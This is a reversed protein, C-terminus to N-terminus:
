SPCPPNRVRDLHFQARQLTPDIELARELDVIAEDTRGLEILTAGRNNLALADDANLRLAKSLDELADVRRGLKLQVLGRDRLPEADQPRNEILWNLDPIAEEFREKTIFVRSRMLRTTPDNVRHRISNEAATVAADFDGDAALAILRGGIAQPNGPENALVADFDAVAKRWQQRNLKKAASAIHSMRSSGNRPARVAGPPITPVHQAILAKATQWRDASEFYSEALYNLERPFNVYLVAVHDAIRCGVMDEWRYHIPFDGSLYDIGDRHIRGAFRTFAGTEKTKWRRHRDDRSRQYWWVAACVAAFLMLQLVPVLLQDLEDYVLAESAFWAFLVLSLVVGQLLLNRDSTGALKKGRMLRDAQQGEQLTM